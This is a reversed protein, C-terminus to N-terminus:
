RLAALCGVCRALDPSQRVLRLWDALHAFQGARAVCVPDVRIIECGFIAGPRILEETNRKLEARTERDARRRDARTILNATMPTELSRWRQWVRVVVPKGM